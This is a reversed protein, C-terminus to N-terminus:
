LSITQNESQILTNILLKDNMIADEINKNFEISKLKIFYDDSDRRIIKLKSLIDLYEVIPHHNLKYLPYNRQKVLYNRLLHFCDSLSFTGGVPTSALIEVVLRSQWDCPPSSMFLQDRVPLYVVSPLTEWHLRNVYLWQLWRRQRANARARSMMRFKKKEKLWLKYLNSKSLSKYQFFTLLSARSLPIFQFTGLARHNSTFYLDQFFSFQRSHPCFFYLSSVCKSSFKHLIQKLSATIKLSNASLRVLQNEGAIWLPTIKAGKYGYTRSLIEETGISARQYEMAIIKKKVSLLLDPIQKIHSLYNELKVSMNQKQLWQYLLLKGLEHEPGEGYSGPCNRLHKHAFHPIIKKGAKIIVESRCTPCFFLCERRFREIDKRSYNALTVLRGNKLMAQLM